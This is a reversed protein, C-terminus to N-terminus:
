FDFRYIYIFLYFFWFENLPHDCWGKSHRTTFKRPVGPLAAVRCDHMTNLLMRFFFNIKIKIKKKFFFNHCSISLFQHRNCYPFHYKCMVRTVVVSVCSVNPHPGTHQACPIQSWHQVVSVCSVNSHPGTHQECLIQSWHQLLFTCFM